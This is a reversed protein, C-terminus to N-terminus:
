HGTQRRIEERIVVPLDFADLDRQALWARADARSLGPDTIFEALAVVSTRSLGLAMFSVETARSVGLELMMTVDPLEDAAASQGIERLHWALVDLYCGLYKPAQFRAVTEVDRMVGRIETALKFNPRNSRLWALRKGIIAALPLGRMWDTILLAVVFRRRSNGFDAGIVAHCIELADIYAQLSDMEGAGPLTLTEWAATSRFHVLLRQLAPPSIGAHRLLVEQPLEVMAVAGSVAEEVAPRDRETLAPLGKLTGATLMRSALLSLVAELLRDERATDAPAGAAIYALLPGVDNLTPDAARRMTHLERRRPPNPWDQPRAADVCVINGQFEKGWRGARGALNWFDAASMPVGNGKQPNRAVLLRCPLNVGELLTSTCVLYRLKEDRFLREIEQRVLQPMAGYHFAVGRDLVGALAYSRHITRRVLDRLSAIEPDEALSAEAGLADHIQQATKEADGPRNAYVVTGPRLGGLAVAVLPLRKSAPLPAAALSFTGVPDPEGDIMLDLTWRTPKGRVQGCWLLNQNVTVTNGLIAFPLPDLSPAGELLLQPNQTLPSAMLVQGDSSRRSCEDVVQQLLVGREDDGFKQAEDVFVIDLVVGPNQGLLLHLREQTMVYIERDASGLDPDWPMTYVEIGEPLAERLDTGVEEILARTPVIYAARFLAADQAREALWSRVIFSKGASTPASVSVWRYTSAASWFERQFPNAALLRGGRLPITLEMRRRMVDLKLPVPSGTWADASAIMRRSAALTLSRHNGMRELLVAAGTRQSEDADESALCGQALRLAMAKGAESEAEILVSATRLAFSWPVPQAPSLAAVSPLDGLVARATVNRATARVAEDELLAEALSQVSM